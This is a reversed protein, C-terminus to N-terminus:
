PKQRNRTNVGVKKQEKIAALYQAFEVYEQKLEEYQGTFDIAEIAKAKFEEYTPIPKLPNFAGLLLPRVVVDDNTLETKILTYTVNKHQINQSLIEDKVLRKLARSLKVNFINIDMNTYVALLANRIQVWRATNNDFLPLIKIIEKEITKEM